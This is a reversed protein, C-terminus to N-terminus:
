FGFLVKFSDVPHAVLDHVSAFYNVAPDEQNPGPTSPLNGSSAAHLLDGASTLTGETWDLVHQGAPSKLADRFAGLLTQIIFYVVILGAVIALVTLLDVIGM